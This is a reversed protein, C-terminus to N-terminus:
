FSAQISDPPWLRVSLSGIIADTPVTGLHNRSDSSGGNEVNDGVVFIQGEPIETQINGAVERDPIDNWNNYPNFGDPHQQNYVKLTGDRVVVREGPLGIVRKILRPNGSPEIVVVDGRTPVYNGGSIQSWTPGFKSIILYDGDHLTPEMSQGFVQYSQFAFAQISIAILIAVTWAAVLKLFAYSRPRQNSPHYPLSHQEM